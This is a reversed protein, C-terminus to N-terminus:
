HRARVGGPATFRREREKKGGTEQKRGSRRMPHGRERGKHGALGHLILNKAVLKTAHFTSNLLFYMCLASAVCSSRLLVLITM